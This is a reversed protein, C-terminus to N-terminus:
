TSKTCVQPGPYGGTPWGLPWKVNKQLLTYEQELGFRCTGILVIEVEDYTVKSKNIKSLLLIDNTRTAGHSRKLSKPTLSSKPPTLVSIPPSPRVLLHTPIM